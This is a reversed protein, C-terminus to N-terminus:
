EKLKKKKKIKKIKFNCMSVGFTEKEVLLLLYFLVFGRKLRKLLLPLSNFKRRSLIM